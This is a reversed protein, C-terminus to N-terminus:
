SFEAVMDIRETLEATGEEGRAGRLGQAPFVELNPRHLVSSKLNGNEFEGEFASGDSFRGRVIGDFLGNSFSGQYADGNGFIITGTGHMVGNVFSGEYVSGTYKQELRGFGSYVGNKFDGVYVNGNISILTGNGDYKGNKFAGIYSTGDYVKLIGQGHYLGLSNKGGEYSHGIITSGRLAKRTRDRSRRFNEAYQAWKTADVRPSAQYRLESAYIVSFELLTCIIVLSLM